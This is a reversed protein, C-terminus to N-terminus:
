ATHNHSKVSLGLFFSLDEQAMIEPVFVRRRNMIGLPPFGGFRVERM